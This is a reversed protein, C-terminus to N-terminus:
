GRGPRAGRHTLLAHVPPDEAEAVAAAEAQGAPAEEPEQAPSPTAVLTLLDAEAGQLGQRALVGLAKAKRAGLPDEDGAEALDAAIQGVRDYFATLDLTDGSAELFSTGAFETPTPHHLTVDWGDKGRAARDAVLEPHHAAVAAAVAREIAAWSCSHLVPALAADVQAAAAKSLPHTLQAVRRAKFVDVELAEVRRWCRPLRHQLDLTDAVLSRVAHKSLGLTAALSEPTFAAVPPCGEGGLSEERHLVGPLGSPDFTAVGGEVTAPHLVCWHVVLRLKDREVARGQVRLSSLVSLAADGDLEDLEVPEGAPDTILM